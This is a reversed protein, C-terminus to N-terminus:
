VLVQGTWYPSLDETTTKTTMTLADSKHSCSGLSDSNVMQGTWQSCALGETWARM